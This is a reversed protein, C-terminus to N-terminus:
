KVILKVTTGDSLMVIYISAKLGIESTSLTYDASAITECYVEQGMLTYIKMKCGAASPIGIIGNSSYIIEKTSEFTNETATEKRLNLGVVVPDHDSSRYMNDQYSYGDYAFVTAEDTNIHFVKCGTM